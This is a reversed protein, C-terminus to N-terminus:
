CTQDMAKALAEVSSHLNTLAVKVEGLTAPTPSAKAESVRRQLLSMSAQVDSVETPFQSAASIVVSQLKPKVQSLAQSLADIGGAAVNMNTVQRTTVKLQDMQQCVEPKNASCAGVALALLWVASRAALRRPVCAM